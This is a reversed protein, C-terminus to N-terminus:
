NAPSTSARRGGFHQRAERQQHQVAARRAPRHEQGAGGPGAEQAARDDGERHRLPAHLDLGVVHRRGGRLPAVADAGLGMDRGEEQAAHLPVPFLPELGAGYPDGRAERRRFAPVRAQVGFLAIQGGSRGANRASQIQYQL